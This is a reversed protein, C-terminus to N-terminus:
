GDRPSPSTYLLCTDPGNGTNTVTLTTSRDQGPPIDYIGTNGLSITAGRSQGVTVTIEGRCKWINGDKGEIFFTNQSNAEVSDDPTIEITSEKEGNGNDYNLNGSSAGDVDAWNSNSGNFGVNIQWDTNGENSFTALLTGTEGPELSM